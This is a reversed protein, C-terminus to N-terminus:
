FQIKYVGEFALKNSIITEGSCIIVFDYSLSSERDPNFKMM